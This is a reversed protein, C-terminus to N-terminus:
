KSHLQCILIGSLNIPSVSTLLHCGMSSTVTIKWKATKPLIDGFEVVEMPIDGEPVRLIIGQTNFGLVVPLVTNDNTISNCSHLDLAARWPLSRHVCHHHGCSWLTEREAGCGTAASVVHNWHVIKDCLSRSQERIRQPEHSTWPPYAQVDTSEPGPGFPLVQGSNPLIQILDQVPKPHILLYVRSLYLGPSHSRVRVPTGEDASSNSACFIWYNQQLQNIKCPSIM